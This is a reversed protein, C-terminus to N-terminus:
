SMRLVQKLLMVAAKETTRAQKNQAAVDVDMNM